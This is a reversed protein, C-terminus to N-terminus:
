VKEINEADESDSVGSSEESVLVEKDALLQVDVSAANNEEQSAQEVTPSTHEVGEKIEAENTEVENQLEADEKLLVPPLTDVNPNEQVANEPVDAQKLVVEPLVTNTVGESSLSIQTIVPTELELTASLAEGDDQNEQQTVVETEPVNQPETLIKADILGEAIERLAVVPAKDDEWPVLPSHGKRTIDRARKAAVLVLEFRNKVNKLCDEVTIRAM